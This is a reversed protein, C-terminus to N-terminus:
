CTATVYTVEALPRVRYTLKTVTGFNGNGAGRLAYLLDANNEEDATILEAGDTGSAVVIQAAVVTECAMGFSRTLLGLGGGLAAGALGVSGENGTPAALGAKGLEIVAEPQNVGAGVVATGAAADITVSKLESVDVVLGNDVSSRGELSHGAAACGFRSTTADRGRSRVSCTRPRSLSFSSWRGPKEDTGLDVSHTTM